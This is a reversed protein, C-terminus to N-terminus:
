IDNTFAKEFFNFVIGFSIIGTIFWINPGFTIPIFNVFFVLAIAAAILFTNFFVETFGTKRIVSTEIFSDQLM